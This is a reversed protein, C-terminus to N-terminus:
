IYIKVLILVYTFDYERGFFSFSVPIDNGFMVGDLSRLVYRLPPYDYCWSM